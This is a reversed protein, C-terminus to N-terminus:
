DHQEEGEKLTKIDKIQPEGTGREVYIIVLAAATILPTLDLGGVELGLAKMRAFADKASNAHLTTLGGPHGTNWSKLATMLVQGTRIEGVVIRDPALRLSSVLLRDLSVHDTSLLSSGREFELQLEPTDEIAIVRTQPKQRALFALAANCLSTKGSGTGGVIVINSKKLIAAEITKVIDRSNSFESLDYSGERHRRISFIPAKVTKPLLGEIRHPTGPVQGSIIPCLVQNFETTSHSACFRLFRTAEQSDLRGSACPTRGFREVFIDGTEVLQIEIVDSEFLLNFLAGSHKKLQSHLDTM